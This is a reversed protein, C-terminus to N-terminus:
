TNRLREVLSQMDVTVGTWLQFSARAQRLLFEHGDVVPMDWSRAMAVAPTEAEGYPLDVLGFAAELVGDPLEEGNMGLPTANVVLAGAVARGWTVPIGGLRAALAEVADARRGTLYVDPEGDIAALAAAASGGTGMILISSRAEFAQSGFIETFAVSDTTEGVITDGVRMLTNVSGSRAAAVSLSDALRCADGKLPMTVNLGDWDGRRLGEITEALVEQDARIRSYEGELGALELIAHHLQPSRSHAIPDGLM